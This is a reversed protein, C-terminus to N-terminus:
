AMVARCEEQFAYFRSYEKRIGAVWERVEDQDGVAPALELCCALLIAAHGYYARRKNGLIGEVRKAAAVRMADLMAKRDRAGVGKEPRVIEILEPIRPTGLTPRKGGGEGAMEWPDDPAEGLDRFLAASIRAKVRGALLGAFVPVLVHGPHEENSWGLGPAAALIGAAAEVDGTLVRLLGLQRGAESPCHNIAARARRVVVAGTPSGAGLWRLLRTMSPAARWAAQLRVAVDRQGLQGAALAAGDLFVGRSEREGKRALKASAEYARLAEGWDGAGVVADCWAMFAEPKRTKQAIRELGTVGEVRLVAERLWHDPVWDWVDETLPQKELYRVWRPLFAELEPLPGPTAREMQELPERVATLGEVADLAQHVARARDKLPTTLYVSAAYQAACEALDVQLVEDVLEHQGLDLEADAVPPLLTEFVARATPHDGALFARSGQRLFADVRDPDGYGTQRAAEVWRAAEAVIRRSPALPRWGSAGKAARQILADVLASRGEEELADLADRVFARLEDVTM